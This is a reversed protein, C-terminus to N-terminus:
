ILFKCVVVFELTLDTTGITNGAKTAGRRTFSEEVLIEKKLQHDRRYFSASSPHYDHSTKMNHM